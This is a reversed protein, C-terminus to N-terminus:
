KAGVWNKVLKRFKFKQALRMLNEFDAETNCIITKEKLNIFGVWAYSPEMYPEEVEVWKSRIFLRGEAELKTIKRVKAVNVDRTILRKELPAGWNSRDVHYGTFTTDKDLVPPTMKNLEDQMGKLVDLETEDKFVCRSKVAKNKRVM